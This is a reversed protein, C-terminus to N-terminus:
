SYHNSKMKQKFHRIKNSRNKRHHIDEEEQHKGSVLEPNKFVGEDYKDAYYAEAINVLNEKCLRIKSSNCSSGNGGKKIPLCDENCNAYYARSDHRMCKKDM